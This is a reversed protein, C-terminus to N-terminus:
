YVNAFRVKIGGLVSTPVGSVAQAVARRTPLSPDSMVIKKMKSVVKKKGIKIPDPVCDHSGNEEIVNVSTSPATPVISDTVISAPCKNRFDFILLTLFNYFKRLVISYTDMLLRERTSSTSSIDTMILEPRAEVAKM